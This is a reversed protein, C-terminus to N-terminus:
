EDFQLEPSYVSDLLEQKVHEEIEELEDPSLNNQDVNDISMLFNHVEGSIVFGTARIDYDKFEVTVGTAKM